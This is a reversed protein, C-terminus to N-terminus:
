NLGPPCKVPGRTLCEIVILQNLYIILLVCLRNITFCKIEFLLIAFYVVTQMSHCCVVSAWMMASVVPTLWDYLFSTQTITVPAAM